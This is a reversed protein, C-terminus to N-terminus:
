ANETEKRLEHLAALTAHYASLILNSEHIRTYREEDGPNLEVYRKCNAREENMLKEIAQCADYYGITVQGAPRYANKM